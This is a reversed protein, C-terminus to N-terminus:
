KCNKKSKITEAMERIELVESFHAKEYQIRQRDISQLHQEVNKRIMPFGFDPPGDYTLSKTLNSLLRNLVLEGVEEKYHSSDWYNLVEIVGKAPLPVSTIGSFGSFDWIAEELIGLTSLEEASIRVLARKWDEFSRWLHTAYITEWQRAHAPSIFLHLNINNKKALFILQRYHGYGDLGDKLDLPNWNCLPLPRYTDQLYGRESGIFRSYADLSPNGVYERFGDSRILGGKLIQQTPNQRLLTRFSDLTTTLSFVLELKRFRNFNDESYDFPTEVQMNFAFFDLGLIVTRPKPCTSNLLEEFLKKSEWIQQGSMAANFVNESDFISNRPNLGINSRSTGLILVEPCRNLLEVTQYVRQKSAIVAKLSNFGKLRPSNFLGYPDIFINFCALLLAIALSSLIFLKLSKIASNNM